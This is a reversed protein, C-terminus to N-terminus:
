SIKLKDEGQYATRIILCFFIFTVLLIRPFNEEPLQTQSVGFFTGIMNFTPTKVGKGYFLNQFLSFNVENVVFIVFIAIGFTMLLYRWTAPDFPMLIKEYSSFRPALSLVFIRKSEEFAATMHYYPTMTAITSEFHPVLNEGVLIKLADDSFHYAQGVESVQYKLTFNGKSAIAQFIEPVLGSVEGTKNNYHSYLTNVVVRLIIPCGHFNQHKQPIELKNKWKMSKKVFVNLTVLQKEDCLEETFWEFTM